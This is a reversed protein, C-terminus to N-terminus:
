SRARAVELTGWPDVALTWGPPVWTTSEEELVLVPGAAGWGPPLAARDFAPTEVWAGGDWVKTVAAPEPPPGEPIPRPVLGAGPASATVRIAVLEVPEGPAAHGYVADHLAHFAREAQAIAAPTADALPVTLEYGQGQYRLDAALTVAAADDGLRRRAIRSLRAVTRRLSSPSPSRRGPALVTEAAETRLETALLGLASVFGPLPPVLVRPSGLEEALRAAHLPGAGGFAVLPLEAPDRG